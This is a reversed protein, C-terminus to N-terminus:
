AANKRPRGRGRKFAVIVGDVILQGGWVGAAERRDLAGALCAERVVCGGCLSKALAIYGPQQAFWLDPDHQLCPLATGSEPEARVSRSRVAAPPPKSM